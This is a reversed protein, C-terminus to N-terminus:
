AGYGAYFHRFASPQKRLYNGHEYRFFHEESVGFPMISIVKLIQVNEDVDFIIPMPIDEGVFGLHVILEGEQTSYKWGKQDLFSLLAKYVKMARMKKIEDNLSM